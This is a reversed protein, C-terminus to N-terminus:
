SGERSKFTDSFRASTDRSLDSIEHSITHFTLSSLDLKMLESSLDSM